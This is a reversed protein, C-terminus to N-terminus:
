KSRLFKRREKRDVKGFIMNQTQPTIKGNKYMDFMKDVMAIAKQYDEESKFDERKFEYLKDNVMLEAVLADKPSYVYFKRKGLVTLYLRGLIKKGLHTTTVELINGIKFVFDIPKNQLKIIELVVITNLRISKEEKTWKFDLLKNPQM